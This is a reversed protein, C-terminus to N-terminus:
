VLSLTALLLPPTVQSSPAKGGEENGHQGALHKEEMKCQNPERTSNRFIKFVKKTFCLAPCDFLSFISTQHKLHAGPQPLHRQSNHFASLCLAQYSGETHTITSDPSIVPPLVPIGAGATFLHCACGYCQQLGPQLHVERAVSASLNKEGSCNHHPKHCM